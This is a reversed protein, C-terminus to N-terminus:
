IDHEKTGSTLVKHSRAGAIQLTFFANSRRKKREKKKPPPPCYQWSNLRVANGDVCKIGSMCSVTIKLIVANRHVFTQMSCAAIQFQIAAAKDFARLASLGAVTRVLAHVKGIFAMRHTLVVMRITHVPEKYSTGRQAAFIGTGLASVDSNIIALAACETKYPRHARDQLEPLVATRSTNTSHKQVLVHTAALM